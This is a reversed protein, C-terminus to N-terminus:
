LAAQDSSDPTSVTGRTDRLVPVDGRAIARAGQQTEIGLEKELIGVKKYEKGNLVCGRGEWGSWWMRNTLVLTQSLHVAKSSM